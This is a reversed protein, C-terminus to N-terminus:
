KLHLVDSGEGYVAHWDISSAQNEAGFARVLKESEAPDGNVVPQADDKIKGTAGQGWILKEDKSLFTSIHRFTLSIRHGSYAKEADTFEVPPRKDPNIGHLFEANTELSMTIMSNHPMPVRYTTRSPQTTKSSKSPPMPQSAKHGRKTRLRMTRQAGFSVNVIKSGKEIDLTKDSHESIYDVGGRYLQILAHNLPHGVAREAARRVSDVASTWPHLPLTHDSPHRYVPRSGDEAINGQCCVLRPVEGTQHHMRQWQVESHLTDFINGAHEEPLLDFLIQSGASELEKEEGFLPKSSQRWTENQSRAEHMAREYEDVTKQDLKGVSSLAALGPHSSRPMLDQPAKSHTASSGNMVRLWPREAGHNKRAASERLAIREAELGRTLTAGLSSDGTTRSAKPQNRNPRRSSTSSQRKPQQDTAGSRRVATAPQSSALGRDQAAPPRQPALAAERPSNQDRLALKEYAKALTTRVDPVFEEEEVESDAAMDDNEPATPRHAENSFDDEEDCEDDEDEDDYHDQTPPDKLIDVVKDSSIVEAEMIDVLQRIAEDRRERRRYGLCDEILTIQIGYRAADMATAFVSLNTNCGCVFLETILKSRLTLLLSTSGFGSYYTKTVKVDKEDMLAKIDDPYEAGWSGKVCCPERSATRTLFLEPDDEVSGVAKAKKVPVSSDQSAKRKTGTGAQLPEQVLSGAIVADSNDDEANASRNAEFESRVWIVDGFERFAPVLEKLRELYGSRPSVPLKGDPSLFDNQLGLLILGKRTQLNPTQQALLALLSSM